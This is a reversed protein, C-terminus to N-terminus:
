APGDSCAEGLSREARGFIFWHDLYAAPDVSWGYARVEDATRRGLRGRFWQLDSANVTAAPLGAEAVAEDFSDRLLPTM